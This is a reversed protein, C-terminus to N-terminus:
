RNIPKVLSFKGGLANALAAIKDVREKREKNCKAEKCEDCIASTYSAGHRAPAHKPHYWVGDVKLKGCRVCESVIRKEKMSDKM